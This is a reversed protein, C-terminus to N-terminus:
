RRSARNATLHSILLSVALMIALTFLYETHAATLSYNCRPVLFVDFALV